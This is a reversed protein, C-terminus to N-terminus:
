KTVKPILEQLAFVNSRQAMLNQFAQTLRDDKDEDQIVFTLPSTQSEWFCEIVGVEKQGGSREKIVACQSTSLFDSIRLQGAQAALPGHNLLEELLSM